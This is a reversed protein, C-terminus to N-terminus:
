ITNTDGISKVWCMVGYVNGRLVTILNGTAADRVHMTDNCLVALARPCAQVQCGSEPLTFAYLRTYDSHLSYAVCEEGQTGQVSSGTLLIGVLDLFNLRQPRGIQLLPLRADVDAQTHRTGDYVACRLTWSENPQTHKSAISCLLIEHRALNYFGSCLDYAPPFRAIVTNTDPRYAYSQGGEGKSLVVVIGNGAVIDLVHHASPVHGCADPIRAQQAM